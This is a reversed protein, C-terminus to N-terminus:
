KLWFDKDTMLGPKKNAEPGDGLRKDFDNLSKVADNYRKIMDEVPSHENVIHGTVMVLVETREVNANTNGALRNLFPIKNIVPLSDM